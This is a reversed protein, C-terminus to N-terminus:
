VLKFMKDPFVTVTFLTDSITCLLCVQYAIFEEDILQTMLLSLSYKLNLGM